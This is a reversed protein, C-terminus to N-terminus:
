RDVRADLGAGRGAARRVLALALLGGALLAAHSPEPIPAFVLPIGSSTSASYGAPLTMSASATNYFDVSGEFLGPATLNMAVAVKLPQGSYSFGVIGNFTQSFAGVTSVQGNASLVNFSFPEGISLAYQLFRGGNGPDVKAGLSVTGDLHLAVPLNITGRPTGAPVAITWQDSFQVQAAANSSGLGNGSSTVRLGVSGTAASGRVQASASGGTCATSRDLQFSDQLTNGPVLASANCVGNGALVSVVGGLNATAVADVSAGLAACGLSLAVLLYRTSM